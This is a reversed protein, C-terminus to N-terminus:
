VTTVNRAQEILSASHEIHDHFGYETLDTEVSVMAQLIGRAVDRNGLQVQYRVQDLLHNLIDYGPDVNM